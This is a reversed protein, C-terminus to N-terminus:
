IQEFYRMREWDTVANDFAAQETRFFHTYHDVVDSGFTHVAFESAAFRETAERLTAPVHPLHTAAYVDGDFIDPPEIQNRIGDLGSALAAAYTLYPNCDAGPIRSEIRLSNGQGVM